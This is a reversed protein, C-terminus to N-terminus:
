KKNGGGHIKKNPLGSKNECIIWICNIKQNDSGHIKKIQYIMNIKVFSLQFIQFCMLFFLIPSVNRYNIKSELDYM